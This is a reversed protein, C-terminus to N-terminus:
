LFSVIYYDKNKKTTTEFCTDFLLNLNYIPKLVDMNTFTTDHTVQKDIIHQVVDLTFICMSSTKQPQEFITKYKQFWPNTQVNQWFMPRISISIKRNHFYSGGHWGL